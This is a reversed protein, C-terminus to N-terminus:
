EQPVLAPVSALGSRSSLVWRTPGCFGQGSGVDRAARCPLQRRDPASRARGLRDHSSATKRKFEQHSHRYTQVDPRRRQQRAFAMPSIDPLRFAALSPRTLGISPCSTPRAAWLRGPRCAYPFARTALPRARGAPRPRWLPYRTPCHVSRPSKATRTPRHGM